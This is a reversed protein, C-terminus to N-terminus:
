MSNQNVKMDYDFHHIRGLWEQILIKFVSDQDIPLGHGAADLVAFTYRKFKSEFKWANRYGVSVDHRGTLILSPKEFENMDLYM